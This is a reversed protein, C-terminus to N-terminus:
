PASSCVPAEGGDAVGADLDPVETIPKISPDYNLPCPDCADGPDPTRTRPSECVFGLAEDCTYDDWSGDAMVRACHGSIDPQGSGWNSFTSTGGPWVWTGNTEIDNAGIWTPGERLSAVLASEEMSTVTALHADFQRCKAEADAWSLAEDCVLYASEGSARLSCATKNKCVGASQCHMPQSDINSQEPDILTPCDDFDDPIGDGDSDALSVPAAHLLLGPASLDTRSLFLDLDGDAGLDVMAVSSVVSGPVVGVVKTSYDFLRHSPDNHYLHQQGFTDIVLVDLRGDLDLDAAYALKGAQAEPGLRQDTVDTFVGTGDNALLRDQDASPVYIDLTGNGDFDGFAPMGAKLSEIPLADPSAHQFVGTGDNIYLRSSDTDAGFFVDPDGDGDVDGIAVGSAGFPIGPLKKTGDTFKGSGDNLLLVEGPKGDPTTAVGIALVDTDGDGDIDEGLVRESTGFLEPLADEQPTFGGVGNGKLLVNSSKGDTGVFLDLKGDGDFDSAVLWHAVVGDPLTTLRPALLKTGDNPYVWVGEAGGAQLIDVAGDGEVDGAVVGAGDVLPPLFQKGTIEVLLLPLSEYTFANPLEATAGGNKVIVSSKGAVSRPTTVTIESRSSAVVKAPQTGFFVEPSTGFGQGALKVTEGGRASGHDVSLSDLELESAETSACAAVVGSASIILVVAIWKIKV